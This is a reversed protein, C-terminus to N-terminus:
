KSKTSPDKFAFSPFSESESFPIRSQSLFLLHFNGTKDSTSQQCQIESESITFKDWFTQNTTNEQIM